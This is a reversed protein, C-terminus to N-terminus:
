EELIMKFEPFSLLVSSIILAMKPHIGNWLTLQTGLSTQRLRVFPSARPM